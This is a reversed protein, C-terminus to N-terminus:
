KKEALVLRLGLWRTEGNNNSMPVKQRFSPDCSEAVSCWAGGRYVIEGNKKVRGLPDTGGPLEELYNDAVFESVNGLMDHIGWSNAEYSGVPAARAGVRDNQTRDAWYLSDDDSLLSVDAFNAHTSLGRASDGFPFRTKSGARAAYEWEAETPLRYEWGKPMAGAKEEFPQLTKGGFDKATPGKVKVYPLHGYRHKLSQFNPARKRVLYYDGMTLEYKSIWFGKKLTVTVPSADRNRPTESSRRGMEFKGPPCYCFTMGAANTWEQGVKPNSPLPGQVPQEGAKELDPLRLHCNLNLFNPDKPLDLGDQHGKAKTPCPDPCEFVFHHTHARSREAFAKLIGDLTWPESRGRSPWIGSAPEFFEEKEETGDERKLKRVMKKMFRNGYGTFYVVTTGGAPTKFAFSEFLRRFDSVNEVEEVAYGLSKLKKAAAIAREKAGSVEKENFQHNCIVLARHTQSWVPAVLLALLVLFRM